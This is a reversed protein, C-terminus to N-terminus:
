IHILSLNGRPRPAPAGDGGGGGGPRPGPQRANSGRPRPAAVQASPQSTSSQPAEEVGEVALSSIARAPAPAPYTSPASPTGCTSSSRAM